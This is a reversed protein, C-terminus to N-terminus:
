IKVKWLILAKVDTKKKLATDKVNILDKQFYPNIIVKLYNKYQDLDRM